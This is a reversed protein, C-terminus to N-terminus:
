TRGDGRVNRIDPAAGSRDGGAGRRPRIEVLGIANLQMLAERVPTRSVGFRTALQVEDLRTGPAFTNSIIANEIEDRLRQVVNESM